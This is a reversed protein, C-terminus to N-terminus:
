PFCSITKWIDSPTGQHAAKLEVDVLETRRNRVEALLVELEPLTM